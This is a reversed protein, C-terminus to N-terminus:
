DSVIITRFVTEITDGDACFHISLKGGWKSKVTGRPLPSTGRFVPHGSEGFKIMMWEAVRDWEAQPRSGHSSYWKKKSGPGFFSLRGPSIKRTPTLMANRSMTKLDGRSTTSCRCSSSGDKLNQHIAWKLCSSKSETASSCHPSNHSFIGSSNWRSVMLQTWLETNHYVRSGLWGKKGLLIQKQTITCRELAYCLIQFYTFRRTRSVSSKKM